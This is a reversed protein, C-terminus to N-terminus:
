KLMIMKKTQIQNGATLKYLYIGSSVPNGVQDKGNWIVFGEVLEPHCFTKIKQGKLNYIELKRQQNQENSFEFSITTSPNFPNPFNRLKFSSNSLTNNNIGTTYFYDYRHNNEWQSTDDDWSLALLEVPRYFDDITTTIDYLNDWVNTYENWDEELVHVIMDGDWTFDQRSSNEWGSSTWHLTLTESLVDDVFIYGYQMSNYWSDNGWAERLVETVNDGDWTLTFKYENLWAQTDEDWDQEIINNNYDGDLTFLMQSNNTWNGASNMEKLYGNLIGNANHEFTERMFETGEISLNTQSLNNNGDYTLELLFNMNSFISQMESVLNNTYTLDINSFVIWEDEWDYQNEESYQFENAEMCDVYNNPLYNMWYYDYLVRNASRLRNGQMQSYVEAVQSSQVAPLVVSLILLGALFYYKM